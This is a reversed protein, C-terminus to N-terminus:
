MRGEGKDHLSPAPRVVSGVFIGLVSATTARNESRLVFNSPDMNKLVATLVSDEGQSNIKHHDPDILVRVLQQDISNSHAQSNTDQNHRVRTLRPHM